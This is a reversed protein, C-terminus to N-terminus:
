STFVELVVVSHDQARRFRVYLYKGAGTSEKCWYRGHGDGEAYGGRLCAEVAAVVETEGVGRVRCQLKVQEDLPRISSPSISEMFGYSQVM